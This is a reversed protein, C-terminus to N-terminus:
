NRDSAGNLACADDEPMGMTAYMVSLSAGMATGNRQLFCLEDFEFVNNRMVLGTGQLLFDQNLKLRRIEYKHKDLWKGICSIAHETDIKDYM